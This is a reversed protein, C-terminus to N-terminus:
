LSVLRIQGVVQHDTLVFSHVLLDQEQNIYVSRLGIELLGDLQVKLAFQLEHLAHDINKQDM